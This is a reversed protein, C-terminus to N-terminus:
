SEDEMTDFIGIAEDWSNTRDLEDVRKKIAIRYMDPTLDGGHEDNSLVEFALDCAHNYKM